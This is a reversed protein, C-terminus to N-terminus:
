RTPYYEYQKIEFLSIWLTTPRKVKKLFSNNKRTDKTSVEIAISRDVDRYKFCM